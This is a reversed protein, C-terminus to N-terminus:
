LLNAERLADMVVQVFDGAGKNVQKRSLADTRAAWICTWKGSQWLAVEVGYQRAGPDAEALTKRVLERITENRDVWARWSEAWEDKTRNKLPVVRVTIAGDVGKRNLEEVIGDRDLDGGLKPVLSRSTVGQIGRGRLHSIFKFEFQKRAEEDESIGVILLKRFKQRQFNPDVWREDLSVRHKAGAGVAALLTVCGIFLVRRRNM